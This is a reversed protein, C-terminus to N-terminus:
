FGILALVELLSLEGLPLLTQNLAIFLYEGM